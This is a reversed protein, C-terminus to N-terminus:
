DYKECLAKIGSIFKQYSYSSNENLSLHCGIAKSGLVKQYRNSTIKKLEQCPNALKDPNRFKKKHQLQAIKKIKLGSEVAALDGLYWSELEHIAIRILTEPKGSNVCITDLNNRISVCDGSDQDRLVVFLCDPQNWSNLKKPLRKELDQKGEFVIYRIHLSMPLLRPLLGKLMVEASKEELFFVITNM